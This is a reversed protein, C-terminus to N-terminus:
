LIVLGDSTDIVDSHYEGVIYEMKAFQKETVRLVQVLGDPPKNRRITELASAEVSPSPLMRCYVSKQLMIFGNKLLTRRFNRYNRREASTETPLDFFVILRMFRYSM